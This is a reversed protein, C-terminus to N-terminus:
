AMMELRVLTGWDGVRQWDGRPRRPRRGTQPMPTRADIERIRGNARGGRHSARRPRDLFPPDSTPSGPALGPADRARSQTRERPFRWSRSRERQGPRGGSNPEIARFRGPSSRRVITAVGGAQRGVRNPENAGPSTRREGHRLRLDLQPQINLRSAPRRSQTRERPIGGRVSGMGPTGTRRPPNPENARSRRVFLGSPGKPGGGPIPNSRAGKM